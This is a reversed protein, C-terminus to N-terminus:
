ACVACSVEPAALVRDERRGRIPSPPLKLFAEPLEHRSIAFVCEITMVRSSRVVWYELSMSAQISFGRCVPHDGCARSHGDLTTNLAFGL